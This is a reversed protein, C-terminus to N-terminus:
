LLMLGCTFTMILQVYRSSSLYRNMPGGGRRNHTRFGHVERRANDVPQIAISPFGLTRQSGPACPAATLVLHHLPPESIQRPAPSRRTTSTAPYPLFFVPRAPPIQVGSWRFGM